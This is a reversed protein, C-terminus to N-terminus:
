KINNLKQKMWEAGMEFGFAIMTRKSQIWADEGYSVHGDNLYPYMEEAVQRAKNIIEETEEM